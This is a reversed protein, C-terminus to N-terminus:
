KPPPPPVKMEDGMRQASEMAQKYDEKSMCRRVKRNTGTAAEYFCVVDAQPGDAQALQESRQQEPVACASLLASSALATTFRLASRM